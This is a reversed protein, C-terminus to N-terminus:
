IPSEDFIYERQAPYLSRLKGFIIKTRGDPLKELEFLLDGPQYPQGINGERYLVFYFATRNNPRDNDLTAYLRQLTQFGDIDISAALRDGVKYLKIDYERAQVSGTGGAAVESFQYTALASKSDASQSDASQSDLSTLVPSASTATSPSSPSSSTTTPPPSTPSTPPSSSLTSKAEPIALRQAAIVSVQCSVQFWLSDPMTLKPNTARLPNSEGFMAVVWNGWNSYYISRQTSDDTRRIGNSNAVFYTFTLSPRYNQQKLYITVQNENKAGYSPVSVTAIDGRDNRYSGLTNNCNPPTAIQTQSRVNAEVGNASVMMVISLVIPVGLRFRIQEQAPQMFEERGWLEQRCGTKGYGTQRYVVGPLVAKGM